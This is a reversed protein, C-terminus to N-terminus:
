NLFGIECNPADSLPKIYYKNGRVAHGDAELLEKLRPHIFKLEKEKRKQLVPRQEKEFVFGAAEVQSRLSLFLAQRESNM